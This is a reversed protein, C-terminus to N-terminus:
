RRAMRKIRSQSTRGLTSMLTLKNTACGDSTGNTGRAVARAASISDTRAVEVKAMHARLAVLAILKAAWALTVM